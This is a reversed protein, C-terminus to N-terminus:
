APVVYLIVIGDTINGGSKKYVALEEDPGIDVSLGSVSAKYNGSPITIEAGSIDEFTSLGTRRQFQVVSDSSVNASSTVTIKVIKNNGTIVQGAKDSAVSGVNFYAGTGIGGSKSFLFPPTVGSGGGGGRAEEIAEQVTTSTMGSAGSTTNDFPLASAVPGIYPNM